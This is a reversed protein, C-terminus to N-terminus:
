TPSDIIGRLNRTSLLWKGLDFDVGRQILRFQNGQAFLIVNHHGRKARQTSCIGFQPCGGEHEIALHLGDSVFVIFANSLYQDSIQYPKTSM